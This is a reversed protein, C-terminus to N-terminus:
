KGYRGNYVEQIIALFKPKNVDLSYREEVTKRGASGIKQRLTPNEILSSLKKIWEEETAALFGNEGDKIIEKNVGVPSCVTPIGMSMYLIAKFGCKGKTWKNEPMPMIGIDFNRIDELETAISWKKCSLQPLGEIEYETGIFIFKIATYKKALTKFVPEKDHLFGETTKSGIWGIMIQKQDKIAYDMNKYKETDICTPLVSVKKNYRLVFDKLYENGAIVYSSLSIIKAIKSPLKFREIFNNVQSVNPLFIADDFDYIIPKNLKAIIYEFFPPGIPYAERHIFVLDYQTVRMLDILRNITDIVFYYFKLLNNGRFYLIKYFNKSIFPRIRCKINKLKLSPFYQEIRLRNSAGETPYPVLFIIRM